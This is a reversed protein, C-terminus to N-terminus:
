TVSQAFPLGGLGGPQLAAFAGELDIEPTNLDMMEAAAAASASATGDVFRSNSGSNSLDFDDDSM